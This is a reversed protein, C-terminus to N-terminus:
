QKLHIIYIWKIGGKKKEKREKITISIFLILVILGLIIAVLDLTTFELWKSIDLNMYM